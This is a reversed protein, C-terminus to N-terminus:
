KYPIIKDKKGHLIFVPAEVNKIHKLNNFGNKLFVSLLISMKERAVDKFSTFPSFLALFM